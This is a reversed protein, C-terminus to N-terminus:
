KECRNIIAPTFIGIEKIEIESFRRLAANGFKGTILLTKKV